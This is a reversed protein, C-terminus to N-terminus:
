PNSSAPPTISCSRPAQLEVRNWPMKALLHYLMCNGTLGAFILGFGAVLPLPWLPEFITGLLVMAGVTIQVQNMVPLGKGLSNTSKQAQKWGKLGNQLLAVEQLGLQSLHAMAEEARRGSHCSLIIQPQNELDGRYAALQELPINRSGPIHETNFEDASRVDIIWQRAEDTIEDPLIVTELHQSM